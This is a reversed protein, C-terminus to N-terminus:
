EPQELVRICDAIREQFLDPTELMYLLETIDMELLMGTIMGARKPENVVIKSYIEEGIYNIREEDSLSVLTDINFSVGMELDVFPEEFSKFNTAKAASETIIVPEEEDSDDDELGAFRNKTAKNEISVTKARTKENSQTSATFCVQVTNINPCRDVTHNKGPCKLCVRKLLEPCTIMSYPSKTKHIYHNTDSKGISKCFACTAVRTLQQTKAYM